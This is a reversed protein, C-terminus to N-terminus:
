GDLTYILRCDTQVVFYVCEKETTFLRRNINSLSTIATQGSIWIFACLHARHVSRLIKFTLDPM